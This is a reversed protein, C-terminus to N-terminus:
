GDQHGNDRDEDAEFFERALADLCPACVSSGPEEVPREGCRPCVFM